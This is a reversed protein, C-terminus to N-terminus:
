PFAWYGLNGKKRDRLKRELPAWGKAMLLQLDDMIKKCHYYSHGLENTDIGSADVTDLGPIVVLDGGAEGLRVFHAGGGKLERSVKLAWDDSSAYLTFRKAAGKINIWTQKTFLEADVDPAAMIVNDFLPQIEPQRALGDLASVLLENGMSHAVLHIRQAGSERAIRELFYQLRPASVKAQARDGDYEFLSDHSPWSYMIPVGEFNLDYALQATRYAADDFNNKFGHIFVLASRKDPSREDYEKRLAGYFDEGKLVSLQTLVIHKKADEKFEIIWMKFPRELEGEKHIPPISVNVFGTILHQGDPDPDPNQETGFYNSPGVSSPVHNRDTAFFVKVIPKKVPATTPAPSEEPKEKEPGAAIAKEKKLAAQAQALVQLAPRYGANVKLVERAIRKAEAPRKEKLRQQAFKVGSESFGRLAEDHEPGTRAALNLAKRYEASAMAFKGAKMAARARVLIASAKEPAIPKHLSASPSQRLATEASLFGATAIQLAAIAVAVM